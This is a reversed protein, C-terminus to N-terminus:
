IKLVAPLGQNLGFSFNKRTMIECMKRPVTGKFKAVVVDKFPLNHGNGESLTM